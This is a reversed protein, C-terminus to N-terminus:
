YRYCMGLFGSETDMVDHASVSGSIGPYAAFPLPDDLAASVNMSRVADGSYDLM